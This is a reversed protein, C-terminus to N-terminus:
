AWPQKALEALFHGMKRTPGLLVAIEGDKIEKPKNGSEATFILKKGPLPELIEELAKEKPPFYNYTADVILGGGRAPLIRIRPRPLSFHELAEKSEKPAIKFIEGVKVAAKRYGELDETEDVVFTSSATQDKSLYPAKGCRVLIQPQTVQWFYDFIEKNTYGIELVLVHKYKPLFLLRGVTRVITTIWGIPSTPYEEAGVVTLPLVFEADPNELNRRTPFRNKLITYIAERAIATKGEGVIAIVTPQHKALAWRALGFLILRLARRLPKKLM